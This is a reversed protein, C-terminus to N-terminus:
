RFGISHARSALLPPSLRRLHHSVVSPARAPLLGPPSVGCPTSPQTGESFLYLDFLYYIFSLPLIPPSFSPSMRCLRRSRPVRPRDAGRRARRSSWRSRSPGEWYDNGVMTASVSVPVRESASTREVGARKMRRRDDILGLGRRGSFQVSSFQVSCSRKARVHEPQHLECDRTIPSTDGRGWRM